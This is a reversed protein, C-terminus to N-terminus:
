RVTKSQAILLPANGSVIVVTHNVTNCGNRTACNAGANTGGQNLGSKMNQMNNAAHSHVGTIAIPLTDGNWFRGTLRWGQLFTGDFRADTNGVNWITLANGEGNVSKWLGRINGDGTYEMYHGTAVVNTCSQGETVQCFNREGEDPIEVGDPVQAEKVVRFRPELSNPINPATPWKEPELKWWKPYTEDAWERFSKGDGRDKEGIDTWYIDWGAVHERDRVEFPEVKNKELDPIKSAEVYPTPSAWGSVKGSKAPAVPTAEAKLQDDVAKEVGDSLTDVQKVLLKEAKAAIRGGQAQQEPTCAAAVVGAIGLGVGTIAQRRSFRGAPKKESDRNTAAPDVGEVKMWNQLQENNKM